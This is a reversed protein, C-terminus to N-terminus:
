ARIVCVICCSPSRKAVLLPLFRPCTAFTAYNSKSFDALRRCTASYGRSSDTQVHVFSPGRNNKFAFLNWHDDFPRRITASWTAVSGQSTLSQNGVLIFRRSTASRDGVLRYDEIIKDRLLWPNKFHYFLIEAIALCKCFFDTALHNCRPRLTQILLM